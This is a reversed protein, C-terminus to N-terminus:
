GGIGDVLVTVEGLELGLQREITEAVVRRLRTALSGVPEGARAVVFLRIHVRGGRLRATVAPGALWAWFVTGGRGVRLVGPEGEAAARAMAGIVRRRVTLVRTGDGETLAM